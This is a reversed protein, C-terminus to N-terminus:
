SNENELRVRNQILTTIEKLYELRELVYKANAYPRNNEVDNALNRLSDSLMELHQEVYSKNKM